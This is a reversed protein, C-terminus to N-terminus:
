WNAGYEQRGVSEGCKGGADSGKSRCVANGQARGQLCYELLRPCHGGDVHRHLGGAPRHGPQRPVTHRVAMRRDALLRVRAGRCEDCEAPRGWLGAPLAATARASGHQLFDLHWRKGHEDGVSQLHCPSLRCRDLRSFECGPLPQEALEDRRHIQIRQFVDLPRYPKGPPDRIRPWGHQQLYQNGM